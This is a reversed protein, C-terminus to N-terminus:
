SALAGQIHRTAASLLAYLSLTVAMMVWVAWAPAAAEMGHETLREGLLLGTALHLAAIWYGASVVAWGLCFGLASGSRGHRRRSVRLLVAFLVISGGFMALSAVQQGGFYSMTVADVPDNGSLAFCM